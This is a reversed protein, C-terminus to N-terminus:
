VVPSSPSLLGARKFDGSLVRAAAAVGDKPLKLFAIAADPAHQHIANIIREFLEISGDPQRIGGGIMICDYKMRSLQDSVQREAAGDFKVSCVDARDGQEAFQRRTEEIQASLREATMGPPVNPGSFDIAHSDLGVILFTKM